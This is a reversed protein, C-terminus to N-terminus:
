WVKGSELTSMPKNILRTKSTLTRERGEASHVEGGYSGTGGIYTRSDEVIGFVLFVAAVFVRAFGYSADLFGDTFPVLAVAWALSSM